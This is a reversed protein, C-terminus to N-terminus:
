SGFIERSVEAGAGDEDEGEDEAAARGEGEAIQRGMERIALMDNTHLVGDLRVVIPKKNAGSKALHDSVLTLARNM